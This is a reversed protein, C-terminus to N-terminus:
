RANKTKMRLLSIIKKGLILLCRRAIGPFSFTPYFTPLHPCFAQKPRYFSRQYPLALWLKNSTVIAGTGSSVFSGWSSTAHYLPVSHRSDTRPALYQHWHFHWWHERGVLSSLSQLPGTLAFAQIKTMGPLIKLAILCCIQGNRAGSPQFSIFVLAFHDAATTWVVVLYYVSGYPLDHQGLSRFSQSEWDQDSAM